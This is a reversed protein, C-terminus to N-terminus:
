FFGDYAPDDVVISEFSLGLFPSDRPVKFISM